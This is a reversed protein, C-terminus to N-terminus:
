LPEKEASVPSKTPHRLVARRLLLRRWAKGVGMGGERCPAFAVLLTKEEKSKAGIWNVSREALFRLLCSSILFGEQIEAELPPHWSSQGAPVFTDQLPRWHVHTSKPEQFKKRYFRGPCSIFSFMKQAVPWMILLNHMWKACPRFDQLIACKTYDVLNSHSVSLKKCEM